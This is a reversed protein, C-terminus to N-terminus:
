SHHQSVDFAKNKEELADLRKRVEDVSIKLLYWRVGMDSVIEEIVGQVYTDGREKLEKQLRSLQGLDGMEELVYDIIDVHFKVGELGDKTEFLHKRIEEQDVLVNDRSSEM